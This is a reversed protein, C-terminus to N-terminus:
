QGVFERNDKFLSTVSECASVCVSAVLALRV